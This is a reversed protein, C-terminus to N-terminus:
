KVLWGGFYGALAGITIGVLVAVVMSAIGVLLSVRAGFILRAFEDRGLDDTGLLHTLSPSAFANPVDIFESPDYTATQRTIIPALLALLTILVLVMAGGVAPRNRVFRDFIIRGQSRRKRQLEPTVETSTNEGSYAVPPITTM